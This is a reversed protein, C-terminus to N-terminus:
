RGNTCRKEGLVPLLTEMQALLSVMNNRWCSLLSLVVGCWLVGGAESLKLTHIAHRFKILWFRLSSSRHGTYFFPFASAESKAM